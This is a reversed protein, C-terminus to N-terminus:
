FDITKLIFMNELDKKSPKNVAYWLEAERMQQLIEYKQKSLTSIMKEIFDVMEKQSKFYKEKSIFMYVKEKLLKEYEQQKM